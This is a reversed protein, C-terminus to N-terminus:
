AKATLTKNSTESNYNRGRSVVLPVDLRPHNTYVTPCAASVFSDFM